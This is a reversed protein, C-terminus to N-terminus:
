KQFKLTRKQFTDAGLKPEVANFLLNGRELSTKPKGVEGEFKTKEVTFFSVCIYIKVRLDDLFHTVTSM